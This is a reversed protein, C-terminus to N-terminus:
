IRTIQIVDGIRLGGDLKLILVAAQRQADEGDSAGVAAIEKSDRFLTVMM